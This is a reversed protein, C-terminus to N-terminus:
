LATKPMNWLTSHWYIFKWWNIALEMPLYCVICVKKVPFVYARTCEHGVLMCCIPVDRKWSRNGMNHLSVLRQNFYHKIKAFFKDRSQAIWLPLARFFTVKKTLRLSGLILLVIIAIIIFKLQTFILLSELLTERISYNFLYTYDSTKLTALSNRNIEFYTVSFECFSM